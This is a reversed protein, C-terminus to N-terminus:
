LGEDLVNFVMEFGIDFYYFRIIIYFKIVSSSYGIVRFFFYYMLGDIDLCRLLIFDCFFFM